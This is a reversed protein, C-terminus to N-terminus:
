DWPCEKKEPSEVYVVNEREIEGELVSRADANVAVIVEEEPGRKSLHVLLAAISEVRATSFQVGPLLSNDPVVADELLLFFVARLNEAGRRLTQLVDFARDESTIVTVSSGNVTAEFVRARPELMLIDVKAGPYVGPYDKPTLFAIVGHTGVALNPVAVGGHKQSRIKFRQGAPVNVEHLASPLELSTTQYGHYDTGNISRVRSETWQDSVLPPLPKLSVSSAREGAIRGMVVCELLSNGALRNAGHMGGTVEGAGFLGPIATFSSGSFLTGRLDILAMIGGTVEGAGFLGPIATFSSGSEGRRRLIEASPSIRLGGMSYHLAPTILAIWYEATDRLTGGSPYYDKGFTDPEGSRWSSVYEEITQELGELSLKELETAAEHVSSFLSLLGKSAYFSASAAGFTDVMESSLVLWAGKRDEVGRDNKAEAFLASLSFGNKLIANTVVDRPALENVFRKGEGNVLIGGTGRLSEPALFNTTTFPDSKNVFSTPHVQVHEMDRAVAGFEMGLKIGDGTAWPGNTTPFKASEGAYKRLVDGGACYGPAGLLYTTGLVLMVLLEDVNVTGGSALVVADAHIEEKEGSSESLVGVVGSEESGLLRKVANNLKINLRDKYEDSKLADILTKMITWGVPQPRGDAMPSFRWTRPFSHGGLRTRDKMDLKLTEGLWRRAGASQFAVMQILNEDNIGHGAKLTDSIFQDPTDSENQNVGNMGSTAKASNGGLFANKEIITVSQCGHELATLAATLGALGGGVVIISGRTAPIDSRLAMEAHGKGIHWLNYLYVVGVALLFSSLLAIRARAIPTFGVRRLKTEDNDVVENEALGAVEGKRRQRLSM